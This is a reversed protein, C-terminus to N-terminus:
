GKSAFLVSNVKEGNKVDRLFCCLLVLSYIPSFRHADTHEELVGSM